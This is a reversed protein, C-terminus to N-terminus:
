WSGARTVISIAPVGYPTTTASLDTIPRVEALLENVDCGKEKSWEEVAQREQKAVADLVMGMMERQLEQFNEARQTLKEFEAVELSFKSELRTTAM